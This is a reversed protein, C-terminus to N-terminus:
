LANLLNYHIHPEVTMLLFPILVTANIRHSYIDFESKVSSWCSFEPNM